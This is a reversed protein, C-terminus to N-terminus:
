KSISPIPVKCGESMIDMSVDGVFMGWYKVPITITETNDIADVVQTIVVMDNIIQAKTELMCPLTIM